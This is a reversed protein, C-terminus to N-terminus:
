IDVCKKNTGNKIWCLADKISQFDRYEHTAVIFPSEEKLFDKWICTSIEIHEPNEYFKRYQQESLDKRQQPTMKQFTSNYLGAGIGIKDSMESDDLYAGGSKRNTNFRIVIDVNFEKKLAEAADQVVEDLEPTKGTVGAGVLYGTGTSIGYCREIKAM